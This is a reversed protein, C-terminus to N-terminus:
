KVSIEILPLFKTLIYGGVIGAGVLMYRWKELASIREDLSKQKENHYKQDVKLETKLDEIGRMIRNETQSIDNGLERQVSTIRSHLEKIDESMEQRRQEILEFIDDQKREQQTIKEDHVALIQKIGSAIDKLVDIQNEVSM